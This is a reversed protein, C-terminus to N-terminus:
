LRQFTQIWRLLGHQIISHADALRRRDLALIARLGITSSDFSELGLMRQASDVNNSILMQATM